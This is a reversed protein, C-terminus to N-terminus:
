GNSKIIGIMADTGGGLSTQATGVTVMNTSNTTAVLYIDGNQPNTSVGGLEGDVGNGGFRKIWM